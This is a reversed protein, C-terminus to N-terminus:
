GYLEKYAMDRDITFGHGLAMAGIEENSIRGTIRTCVPNARAIKELEEYLEMGHRLGRVERRVFLHGIHCDHGRFVYSLFAHPSSLLHGGEREAIYEAFLEM